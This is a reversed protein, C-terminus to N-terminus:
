GPHLWSSRSMYTRFGCSVGLCLFSLFSISVAHLKEIERFTLRDLWDCHPMDRKEYKQMLQSIM